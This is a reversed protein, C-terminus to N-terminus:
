QCREPSALVDSAAVEMNIITVAVSATGYRKTFIAVRSIRAM